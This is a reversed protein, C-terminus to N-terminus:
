FNLFNFLRGPRKISADRYRLYVYLESLINIIFFLFLFFNGEDHVEAGVAVVARVGVGVEARERPPRHGFGVPSKKM